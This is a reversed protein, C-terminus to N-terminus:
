FLLVKPNIFISLQNCSDTNNKLMQNDSTGEIVGKVTMSVLFENSKSLLEGSFKIGARSFETWVKLNGKNCIQPSLSLRWINRWLQLLSVYNNYNCVYLSLIFSSHHLSYSRFVLQDLTFLSVASITSIVSLLVVSNLSKAVRTRLNLYLHSFYCFFVISLDSPSIYSTKHLLYSFYYLFYFNM